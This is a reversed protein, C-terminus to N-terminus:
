NSQTPILPSEKSAAKDQDSLVAAKATTETYYLDFPPTHMKLEHLREPIYKM